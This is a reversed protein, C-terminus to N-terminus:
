KLLKTIRDRANRIVTVLEKLDKIKESHAPANDIWDEALEELSRFYGGIEWKFPSAPKSGDPKNGCKVKYELTYNNDSIIIRSNKDIKINDQEM